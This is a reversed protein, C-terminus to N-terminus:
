GVPDPSVGPPPARWPPERLLSRLSTTLMARLRAPDVRGTGDRPVLLFRNGALDFPASASAEERIAIWRAPESSDVSTTSRAHLMGAEFLVNPNDVFVPDDPGATRAPESLYCIGFPSEAINRGIQANIAGPQSSAQWDTYELKDSFEELVDRVARVVDEDGRAPYALFVHPKALKPFRALKLLDDLEDLANKTAEAQGRNVYWLELLIGLADALAHFEDKAVETPDIYRTTEFYYIGLKRRYHVPVAVLTLIGADRSVPRYVPAEADSWKDVCRTARLLAAKDAAVLCLPRDTDFSMTLPNTYAGGDTRIAWVREVHAASSWRTTLRTRVMDGDDYEQERMFEFHRAGFWAEVYKSVLDRVRQMTADSVIDVSRAFHLLQGGFTDARLPM